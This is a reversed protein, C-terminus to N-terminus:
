GPRAIVVWTLNQEDWEYNNMDEPDIAPPFPVPPEWWCTFENLTWSKYPQPHYFADRKKDYIMGIGAYNKRLPTGGVQHVGEHTDKCTQKWISSKDRVLHQCFSIGVEEVEKSLLGLPDWWEKKKLYKNNVVIVQVVTNNNDLKAFYAAM